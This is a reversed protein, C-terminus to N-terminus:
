IREVGLDCSEVARQCMASLQVLEELLFLEDPMRRFVEEKFELFEEEIVALWYHMLQHKSWGDPISEPEPFKVRARLLEKQVLEPFTM